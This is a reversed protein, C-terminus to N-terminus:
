FPRYMKRFGRVDETFGLREYFTHAGKRFGSSVLIAYVCHNQLAFRDMEELLMRGVGKGRLNEQVIGDEVVLFPGDVALWNCCIGLVSSLLKGEEKAGLLLYDTNDLMKAYRERVKELSLVHAVLDRYLELLDPLDGPQLPQIQM